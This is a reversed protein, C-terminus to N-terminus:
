DVVGEYRAPSSDRLFDAAEERTPPLGTLDLSVRRLLTGPEAAPSPHLAATEIRALVFRDVDNRCWGSEVPTPLVPNELARYAWHPEAAGCARGCVLLIPLLWRTM